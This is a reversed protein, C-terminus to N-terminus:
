QINNSVLLFPKQVTGRCPIFIHPPPKLYMQQFLGVNIMKVRIYWCPKPWDHALISNIYDSHQVQPGLFQSM